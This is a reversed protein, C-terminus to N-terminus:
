SWPAKLESIIKTNKTLRRNKEKDKENENRNKTKYHGKIWKM